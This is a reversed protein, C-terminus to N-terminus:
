KTIVVALVVNKSCRKGDNQRLVANNMVKVQFRSGLLCKQHLTCKGDNQTLVTKNMVTERFLGGFVLIATYLANRMMQTLVAMSM